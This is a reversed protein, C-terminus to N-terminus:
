FDVSFEELRHQCLVYCVARRCPVLANPISISCHTRQPPRKFTIALM